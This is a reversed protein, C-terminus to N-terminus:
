DHPSSGPEVALRVFSGRSAASLFLAATEAVKEQAAIGGFQGRQRRRKSAAQSDNKRTEPPRLCPLHAQKRASPTRRQSLLFSAFGSRWTWRFTNRLQCTFQAICAQAIGSPSRLACSRDMAVNQGVGAGCKVIDVKNYVNSSLIGVARLFLLFFFM